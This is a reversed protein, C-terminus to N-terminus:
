RRDSPLGPSQCRRSAINALCGSPRPISRDAAAVVSPAAIIVPFGSQRYLWHLGYRQNVNMLGMLGEYQQQEHKGINKEANEAWFVCTLGGFWRFWVFLVLDLQCTLYVWDSIIFIYILFL